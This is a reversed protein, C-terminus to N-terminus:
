IPRKVKQKPESFRTFTGDTGLNGLVTQGAQPKVAREILQTGTTTVLPLAGTQEFSLADPIPALVDAKAVTYEAYTGNALAM